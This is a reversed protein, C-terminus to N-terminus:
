IAFSALALGAIVQALRQRSLGRLSWLLLPYLLYFQEEVALSWTHVLPKADSAAAFYDSTLYFYVNSGFVSTAAASRGLDRLQNPLLLVCGIALTVTMMVLLAPLIRVIRHRYFRAISFRGDAIDRVMIATILFGSIVFFIDVGVFGGRLKTVGCHLLLIPLIALARLGDIDPRYRLASADEPKISGM